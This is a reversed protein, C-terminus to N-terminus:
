EEDDEDAAEGPEETPIRYGENLWRGLDLQACRESCFPIQEPTAPAGCMPCAGARGKGNGRGPEAM